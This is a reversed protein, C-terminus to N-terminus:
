ALTRRMTLRIAGKEVTEELLTYGQAELQRVACHYSYRQTLRNLWAEGYGNRQDYDSIIAQYGDPQRLFGIDNSASGVYQRSVIMHAQEQRADGQYGMLRQPQEYSEIAPFLERLAALLADRDVLRTQVVTYHSM